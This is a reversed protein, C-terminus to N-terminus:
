YARTFKEFALLTTSPIGFSKLFKRFYECLKWCHELTKPWSRTIKSLRQFLEFSQQLQEPINPHHENSKPLTPLRRLHECLFSPLGLPSSRGSETTKSHRPELNLYRRQLKCQHKLNASTNCSFQM